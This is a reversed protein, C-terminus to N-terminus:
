DKIRKSNEPKFGLNIKIYIYNLNLELSKISKGILPDGEKLKFLVSQFFIESSVLEILSDLQRLFKFDRTVGTHAM